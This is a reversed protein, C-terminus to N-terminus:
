WSLAAKLTKRLWSSDSDKWSRPVWKQLAQPRASLVNGSQDTTRTVSVIQRLPVELAGRADNHPHVAIQFGGDQNPKLFLALRSYTTDGSDPFGFIKVRGPLKAKLNWVFGSCSSICWHDTMIRVQGQFGHPKPQFQGVSCDEKENACFQPVAPTWAGQTRSGPPLGNWWIERGMVKWFLSERLHPDLLEPTVQFQVYQEQFPEPLLLEYLPIPAEGGLNQIVDVLLRKVQPAKKKWYNKWFIEVEGPFNRFPGDRYQFSAIRLITTGAHAKSEYACLNWGQFKIEFHAYRKLDLSCSSNEDSERPARPLPVSLELQKGDREITMSFDQSDAYETLLGSELHAQFELDCQELLPFKCFIRNDRRWEEISRGQLAIVRDGNRLKSIKPDHLRLRLIPSHTSSNEFVKEWAVSWTPKRDAKPSPLLEPSLHVRSHLNSYTADLRRFVHGFAVLSGAREAELRLRQVTSEWPESRNERALLAEADLRRMEAALDHIMQVRAKSDPLVFAAEMLGAQFIAGLSILFLMKKPM